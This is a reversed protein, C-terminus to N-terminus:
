KIKLKITNNNKNKHEKNEIDIKNYYMEHEDKNTNKNM